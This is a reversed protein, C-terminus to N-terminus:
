KLKIEEIRNEIKTCDFGIREKKYFALLNYHYSNFPVISVLNDLEEFFEDDNNVFERIRKFHWVGLQALFDPNFFMAILRHRYKPTILKNDISLLRKLVSGEKFKVGNDLNGFYKEIGKNISTKDIKDKLM